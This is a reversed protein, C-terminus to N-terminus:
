IRITITGGLGANTLRFANDNVKVVQYFNSTTTIGTSTTLGTITTPLTSGIGVATQYVIKDGNNFGHSDFHITNTITNIGIPKVFVQRNEYGSGGDLVRIDKFKKMM